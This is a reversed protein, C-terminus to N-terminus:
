SCYSTRINRRSKGCKVVLRECFTWCRLFSNFIIHLVVGDCKIITTRGNRVDSAEILGLLIEIRFYFFRKSKEKRYLQAHNEKSYSVIKIIYRFRSELDSTAVEFSLIHHSVYM